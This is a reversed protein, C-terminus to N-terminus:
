RLKVLSDLFQKTSVPNESIHGLVKNQYFGQQTKNRTRQYWDTLQKKTANQNYLLGVVQSLKIDRRSLVAELAEDLVSIPLNPNQQADWAIEGLLAAYQWVSLRAVTQPFKDLSTKWYSLAHDILTEDMGRGIHILALHALLDPPFDQTNIIGIANKLQGSLLFNRFQLDLGVQTTKTKM